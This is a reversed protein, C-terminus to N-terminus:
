TFDFCEDHRTQNSEEELKTDKTDTNATSVHIESDILSLINKQSFGRMIELQLVTHLPKTNSVSIVASIM